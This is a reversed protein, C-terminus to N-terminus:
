AYVKHSEISKNDFFSYKSTYDKTDKEIHIEVLKSKYEIQKVVKSFSIQVFKQNNKNSINVMQKWGTNYVIVIIRTNNEIFYKVLFRSIRHFITTIKNNREIYLRIM